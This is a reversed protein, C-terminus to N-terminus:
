YIATIRYVKLYKIIKPIRGTVEGTLPNMLAIDNGMANAVLLTKEDPTLMVHHPEKGIPMTKTVTRTKMDVLSVSADGSNLVVALTPEALKAAQVAGFLLSAATFAVTSRLARQFFPPTHM